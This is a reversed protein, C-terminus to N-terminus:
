EFSLFNILNLLSIPFFTLFLWRNLLSSIQFTKATSLMVECSPSLALKKISAWEGDCLAPILCHSVWGACLFIVRGGGARSWKGVQSVFSWGWPNHCCLFIWRYGEVIPSAHIHRFVVLNYIALICWQVHPTRVLDRAITVHLSYSPLPSFCGQFIFSNQIIGM